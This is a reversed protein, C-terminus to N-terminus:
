SHNSVAWFWQSPQNINDSPWERPESSFICFPFLFLPQPDFYFNIEPFFPLKPQPSPLPALLFTCIPFLNAFEISLVQHCTSHPASSTLSVHNWVSPAREVKERRDPQKRIEGPVQSWPQGERHPQWVGWGLCVPKTPVLDFFLRKRRSFDISNMFWFFFFSLTERDTCVNTGVSLHM